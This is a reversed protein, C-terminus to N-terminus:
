AITAAMKMTTKGEALKAFMTPIDELSGLEVEPIIQHQQVLQIMERLDLPNGTQTGKLVIAKLVFTVISLPIPAHPVGVAVITKSFGIAEVAAAYAPAVGAAVIAGDLGRGGTIRRTETKVHEIHSSDIAELAGRAIATKRAAESVDYGIVQFGM